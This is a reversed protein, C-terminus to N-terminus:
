SDVEAAEAGRKLAGRGVAAGAAGGRSRGRGGAALAVGIELAEGLCAALVRNLGAGRLELLPTGGRLQRSPGGPVRRTSPRPDGWGACAAGGGGGGGAGGAGHAVCPATRAARDRSGRSARPSARDAPG